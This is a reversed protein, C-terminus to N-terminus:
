SVTITEEVVPAAGDGPFASGVGSYLVAKVRYTGRKKYSHTPTEGSGSSGDGFEWLVNSVPLRSVTALATFTVPERRRAQAPAFTFGPTFGSQGTTVIGGLGQSLGDAQFAALGVSYAGAEPFTHTITPATTEITDNCTTCGPDSDNFQWSFDAISPGSNSADFTMDTGSGATASFTADPLSSPLTLRQLCTHGANSWEQQYWYKHGNIVQNYPVGNVTGLPTGYNYACQDGNEQGHNPGTGNTWTDNPIPDTISENHEHSLGTEMAADAVGNPSNGDTCLPQGKYSADFQYPDNSYFLMPSSLTEQHYACYGALNIDGIGATCFGYNTSPDNTFCGQVDPPTLLFVEHELDRKLHHATAVTQLEAQIQADVLCNTNPAIVPCQSAPYPDRDVITGGYAVAYNAVAGTLDNYQTAVSEVNQTGGNDHQLNKFYTKVGDVYGAPFPSSGKPAWVIITDTNSPMLAGGNYDLNNFMADGRSAQSVATRLPVYSAVQGNPLRELAASASSAAIACVVSAAALVVLVTQRGRRFKSLM